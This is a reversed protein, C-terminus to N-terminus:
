HFKSIQLFQDANLRFKPTSPSIYVANNETDKTILANAGIFCKEGIHIDNGITANAGLFSKQGINVCGSVSAMSTIWVHDGISSHHGVLAGSWIFVNNGITVRPQVCVNNMIFCNEGISTTPPINAKPHIYSALTFGKRKAEYFKQARVHNLEQYGLAIFLKFDAHDVHDDLREFDYVPRDYFTDLVRFARDCTFAIVEEESEHEFYNYVVDAVIGTGFIVINSM